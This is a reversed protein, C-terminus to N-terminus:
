VKISALSNKLPVATFGYEIFAELTNLSILGHRFWLSSSRQKRSFRGRLHIKFGLLNFGTFDKKARLKLKNLSNLDILWSFNYKWYNYRVLRNFFINAAM